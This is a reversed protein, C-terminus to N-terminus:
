RGFGRINPKCHRCPHLGKGYAESAPLTIINNSQSLHECGIDHFARGAPTRAVCYEEFLTWQGRGCMKSYSQQGILKKYTHVKKTSSPFYVHALGSVVLGENVCLWSIMSTTQDTSPVWVNALLRGYHDFNRPNNVGGSYLFTLNIKKNQCCDVTFRKAEQSFDQNGKIEPADIGLLRVRTRDELTLTDGDYVGKCLHITSDHPISPYLPSLDSQIDFHILTSKDNDVVSPACNNQVQASTVGQGAIGISVGAGATPGNFGIDNNIAFRIKTKQTDRQFEEGLILALSRRRRIDHDHAEDEEERRRRVAVVVGHKGRLDSSNAISPSAIFSAHSNMSRHGRTGSRGALLCVVSRCSAHLHHRLNTMTTTM